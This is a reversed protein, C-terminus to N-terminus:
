SDVDVLSSLAVKLVLCGANDLDRNSVHWEARLALTMVIQMTRGAM